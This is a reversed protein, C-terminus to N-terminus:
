RKLTVEIAPGESPGFRSGAENTSLWRLTFVLHAPITKLYEVDGMDRDNLYVHVRTMRIDAGARPLALVERPAQLWRPRLTQVADYATGVLPRVRDIEEATILRSSRRQARLPAAVLVLACLLLLAGNVKLV